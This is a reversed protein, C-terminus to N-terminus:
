WRSTNYPVKQVFGQVATVTVFVAKYTGAPLDVVATGAATTLNTTSGVPIFTTGDPLAVQLAQTTDAASAAYMYRGGLLLFTVPSATVAGSWSVGDKTDVTALAM